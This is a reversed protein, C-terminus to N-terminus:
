EEIPEVVAVPAAPQHTWPETRPLNVLWGPATTHISFCAQNGVDPLGTAGSSTMLKLTVRCGGTPSPQIGQVVFERGNPQEVWWLEKGVPILCPDPSLLTVLPRRVMSRSALERHDHDVAVVRGRIAKNELIYPVMRLPDDCAEEAELLRKAEEFNRLTMAAQRPTQRTRRLGGRAMWDMHRTYADRDEEWRRAVSPAEAYAAERDRCRWLLGWTRQVLPRYHDEILGLPRRVASPTAGGTRAKNFREVLPYLREDDDGDPVPGVPRMEARAAADFGHEGAPPDIYADVTALSACELPSLATAWHDNLLDALSVLLQQGPTAWHGWLFRMHRGLRVLAEDAPQPGTTPLYALRRGLRGLMEVTAVNAVVVQPATRARTFAYDGRQLAERDAAHAEFRPNFWRAFELLAAFALDRNRPEGPVATTLRDTRDGWGIAAAAFPEAGLQWLVVALPARVL